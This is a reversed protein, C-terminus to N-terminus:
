LYHSILCGGFHPPSCCCGSRVELMISFPAIIGSLVPTRRYVKGSNGAQHERKAKARKRRRKECHRSVFSPTYKSRRVPQIEDDPDDESLDTTDTMITSTGDEDGDSDSDEETELNDISTVTLSRRRGKRKVRNIQPSEGPHFSVARKMSLDNEQKGQRSKSGSAEIDSQAAFDRDVIGGTDMEELEDTLM